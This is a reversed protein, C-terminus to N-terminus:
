INETQYINVSEMDSQKLNLPLHLVDIKAIPCQKLISV